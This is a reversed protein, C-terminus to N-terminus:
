IVLLSKLLELSILIGLVERSIFEYETVNIMCGKVVALFSRIELCCILIGIFLYNLLELAWM